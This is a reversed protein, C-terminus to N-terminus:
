ETPYEIENVTFVKFHPNYVIYLEFNDQEYTNLKIADVITPNHNDPHHLEGKELLKEYEEASVTTKFWKGHIQVEAEINM